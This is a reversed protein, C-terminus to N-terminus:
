GFAPFEPDGESTLIGGNPVLDYYNEHTTFNVLENESMPHGLAGFVVSYKKAENPRLPETNEDFPLLSNKLDEVVRLNGEPSIIDHRCERFLDSQGLMEITGALGIGDPVYSLGLGNNENCFFSRSPIYIGRFDAVYVRPLLDNLAQEPSLALYGVPIRETASIVESKLYEVFTAM